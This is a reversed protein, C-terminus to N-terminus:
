SDALMFRKICAQCICQTGQLEEPLQAILEAPVKMDMCWCSREGAVGCANVQQCIPCILEQKNQAVRVLDKSVAHRSQCNM